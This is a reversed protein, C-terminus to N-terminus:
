EDKEEQEKTDGEPKTSEVQAEKYEQETELEKQKNEWASNKEVSISTGFTANVVEIAEKRCRLMDDILPILTDTQAMLEEESLYERKMNFNANLGIENYWSAKLYQQLEILQIIVNASQVSVNAARIGKTVMAQDMVAELKGDELAKIYARASAIERDTSAAIISQQRSNIQASRISIDNETLETAYRSFLYFLGRMNTDNRMLVCDPKTSWVTEDYPPLHNVIKCDRSGGLAPNAVIYITPRYYPDPAGGWGGPLAYLKGNWELWGIHGNIQLFLELMYAPITDPLGKYEFMQNTRDFMMLVYNYVSKRKDLIDCRCDMASWDGTYRSKSGM